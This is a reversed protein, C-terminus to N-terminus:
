DADLKDWIKGMTTKIEKADAAFHKQSTAIRAIARDHKGCMEGHGATDEIKLQRAPGGNKKESIKELIKFGLLLCSALTIFVFLIPGVIPGLQELNM